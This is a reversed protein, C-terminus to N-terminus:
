TTPDVKRISQSVLIEQVCCNPCSAGPCGTTANTDDTICPQNKKSGGSCAFDDFTSGAPCPDPDSQSTDVWTTWLEPVTYRFHIGDADTGCPPSCANTGVTKVIKGAQDCGQGPSPHSTGPCSSACNSDCSRPICCAPCTAGPCGTTANTDDTTCALGC